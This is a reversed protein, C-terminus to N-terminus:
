THVRLGQGSDNLLQPPLCCCQLHSHEHTFKSITSTSTVEKHTCQTQQICHFRDLIAVTNPLWRELVALRGPGLYSWFM